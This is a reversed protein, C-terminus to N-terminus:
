SGRRVWSRETALLCWCNSSCIGQFVLQHWFQQGHGLNVMNMCMLVNSSTARQWQRYGTLSTLSQGRAQVSGISCHHRGSHRWSTSGCAACLHCSSRNWQRQWQTSSTMMTWVQSALPVYLQRCQKGGKTLTDQCVIQDHDDRM